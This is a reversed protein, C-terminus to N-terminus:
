ASRGIINDYFVSARAMVDQYRARTAILSRNYARARILLEDDKLGILMAEALDAPNNPDCLLANRGDDLWERISPIDGAVPLSGCAMAELLSNPTGDHLTPSVSIRSARFLDGMETVSLHPLLRVFPRVGLRDVIKEAFASGAM